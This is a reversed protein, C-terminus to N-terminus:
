GQAEGRGHAAPARGGARAAAGAAGGAYRGMRGCVDAYALMLEGEQERQQELRQVQRRLSEFTTTLEDAYTLM